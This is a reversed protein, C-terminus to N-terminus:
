SAALGRTRLQIRMTVENGSMSHLPINAIQTPANGPLGSVNFVHVYNNPSDIVYIEKEDPSLTIGHSPENSNTTNSYGNVPVTYLVNGSTISAVQFGIFADATTFSFTQKGNYTFPRVGYKLPGIKKTVTDTATSTQYLYSAGVGGMYVNKGDLSVSTNHPQTGASISGIQAGNARNVIYWSTSSMAASGEPLYIKSGDRTIALADVGHNYQVSYVVTDNLLNYKLLGGNGNSVGNGGYSVYLMGSGPDVTVGRVGTTTPLAVHKVLSFNNDMDYVYMNGDPFTYFYHNTGSAAHAYKPSIGKSLLIASIGGVLLFLVSIIIAARKLFVTSTSYLFNNM